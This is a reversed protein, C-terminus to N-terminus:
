DLISMFMRVLSKAERDPDFNELEPRMRLTGVIARHFFDATSPVDVKKFTGEEIGERIVRGIIETIAKVHKRKLAPDMKCFIQTQDLFRFYAINKHFLRFESQILLMLKARAGQPAEAIDSMVRLNQEFLRQAAYVMLADKDKFYNYLTGIAIGAAAAVKQMTLKEPGCDSFVELVARYVSERMVKEAAAQKQQSLKGM